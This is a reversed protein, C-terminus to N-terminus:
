WVVEIDFSILYIIMATVAYLPAGSRMQCTSLPPKDINLICKLFATFSCLCFGQCTKIKGYTCSGDVEDGLM